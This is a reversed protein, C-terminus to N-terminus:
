LLLAHDDDGPPVRTPQPMPAGQMEQLVNSPYAWDLLGAPVVNRGLKTSQEDSQTALLIEPAVSLPKFNGNGALIDDLFKTGSSLTLPQTLVAARNRKVKWVAMTVNAGAAAERFAAVLQLQSSSAWVGRPVLDKRKGAGVAELVEKGTQMRRRREKLTAEDSGHPVFLITCSEGCASAGDQTAVLQQMGYTESPVVEEDAKFSGGDSGAKGTLFARLPGRKFQGTFLTFPGTSSDGQGDMGWVVRRV